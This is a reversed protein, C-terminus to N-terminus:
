FIYIATDAYGFPEVPRLVLNIIIIFLKKYIYFNLVVVVRRVLVKNLKILYISYL